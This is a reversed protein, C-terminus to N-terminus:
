LLQELMFDHLTLSGTAVTQTFFFDLTLASQSNFGTGVAPAINYPVMQGGPGPGTAPAATNISAPSLWFGQGILNASTGSGVARCTLLVDLVWPVNTQAVINLPMAQTDFAVVGGLRLDFRATGPTTVACSIRGSARLRWKRGVQFYGAPLTTPVYTPVCSAAAAATLTPGDSYASAIVQSPM